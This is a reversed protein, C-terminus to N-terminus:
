HGGPGGGFRSSQKGSRDGGTMVTDAGPAKALEKGQDQTKRFGSKVHKRNYPWLVYTTDPDQGAFDHGHHRCCACIPGEDDVLRSVGRVLVTKRFQEPIKETSSQKSEPIKETSSMKSEPIKETCGCGAARELGAQSGQDASEAGLSDEQQELNQLERGVEGMLDEDIMVDETGALFNEELSHPGLLATSDPENSTSTSATTPNAAQQRPAPSPTPPTSPNGEKPARGPAGDGHPM